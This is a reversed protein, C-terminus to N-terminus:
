CISFFNISRTAKKENQEGNGLDNKAMNGREGSGKYPGELYDALCLVLYYVFTELLFDFEFIRLRAVTM